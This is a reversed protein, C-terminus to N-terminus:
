SISVDDGQSSLSFALSCEVMCIAIALLFAHVTRSKWEFGGWKWLRYLEFFSYCLPFLFCPWFFINALIWGVNEEEKVEEMCESSTSRSLAFSTLHNCLCRLIGNGADKGVCGSTDWFGDENEYVCTFDSIGEYGGFAIYMGKVEGDSITSSISEGCGVIKAKGEEEKEFAPASAM